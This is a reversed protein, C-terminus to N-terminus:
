HARSDSIIVCQEEDKKSPELLYARKRTNSNPDSGNIETELSWGNLSYAGPKTVWLKPYITVIESPAITGRFTMRGSYPPPLLNISPNADTRLKFTYHASQTTSHNRICVELPLHCPGSTFDHLKTGIEKLSLVLPNMEANWESNRIADLVEMNEKRTEAYMSRKVKASEAEEVIGDLRAHGAGLTIGHVNIHGAINGGSVEWFIIMDVASPNYLPFISPHSAPAIYSHVKSINHSMYKRRATHIFNTTAVSQISKKKPSQYVSCTRKVERFVFLLCLEHSGPMETHLMAPVEISEGPNITNSGDPLSFPLKLPERPKLSNSTQIIETESSSNEPGSNPGLWIEDDAGAIMWVESIPKSGANTLWLRITKTEGQLLVLRQDEVFTVFLRHESPIIETKMVVDPAYTPHQRQLATDHLRRGRFALSEQTRLISLFDYKADTISLTTPIKAKLSIPVSITEKPGLVVEKITEVEIIDGIHEVTNPKTEVVLTVNSLNIDAELPNYLILDVWFLENTSVKGGPLLIEKGGKSKWFSRWDEQRNQWVDSNGNTIDGSIRIRCQKNVCLKLPITLNTTSSKDSEMSKWYNYAVRFDDLYVKDNSQPKAGDELSHGGSSPFTSTGNLLSLFLKVAGALDGTTYLLRGLPHAIGAMIDELGETGSPSKGESDWFSPSLEKPPSVSYLDQAKRLFYMTLPKIGCKELRTAAAVYWLAARRRANKQASLLAAQALLLASPTEDGNSAAWVLWREGELMNSVFDRNSIGAEWRVAYSLVRTQAHPPLDMMNPHTTALSAQAYLPVSPSPSLLLPLIDSGGKGDKRLAEWVTVALKFDGLITTFEALRRQQSPPTPGSNLSISGPRGSVSSSSPPPTPVPTPVQSGFLRRTSSFLRSPLRRTSSFNENWEVVCKEMWPVLSMVVFERTFRATQQIDNEQMRLTNLASPNSFSEPINPATPTIPPKQQPSGPTPPPPLRPMLAPVPIPPPPPQPLELSLLYSHLGFQKKVANYLAGAEEASLPSNQPHIILTYRLFNTDVWPPLQNTRSHLATIAQLPNPATTSVALILAVPHNWAETKAPVFDGEACRRLEDWWPTRVTDKDGSAEMDQVWKSCRNSIRATIWDITRIARQEDDERCADEVDQLDSFRLAFSAHPVSVLTVTRTTVQPLPSFSQLIHQLPPLSSSELLESLDPSALICIHPGGGGFGGGWDGGGDGWGGGGFDNDLMDGLLLGGAMGGMLPLAMGGMGGRRGMGTGYRAQPYAYTPAAFQPGGYRSQGYMQQQQQQMQTYIDDNSMYFPWIEPVMLLERKKRENYEEMSHRAKDKMKALFGKKHPPPPVDVPTAERGNFSHRRPRNNPPLPLSADSGFGNAGRVTSRVEPHAELYQEDEYPHTWISRPPNAKTDVFFVHGSKPDFQKIWGYPLPANSDM